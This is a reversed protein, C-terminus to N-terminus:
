KIKKAPIGVYVAPEEIHKAVVAGMGITVNDCIHMGQRVTSSNGWYSHKGIKCEGSLAVFVTTTAFDGIVTDHGVTTFGNLHCHKGVQVDVTLVSNIQVISGEGIEVWKTVKAQPSILTEYFTEAPLQQTVKERIHSNGIAIVASNNTADFESQPRVPLGMFEREKWLDDPEMFCLVENDRKIESILWYIEKAYGGTGIICIKKSM